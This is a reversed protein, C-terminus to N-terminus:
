ILFIIVTIICYPIKLQCGPCTLGYELLKFDCNPCPTALEEIESKEPHRFINKLTLIMTFFFLLIGIWRSM